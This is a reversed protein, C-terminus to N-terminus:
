ARSGCFDATSRALEEVVEDDTRGSRKLVHFGHDAGEVVHLTAREGLRDTVQKMLTLEALKDRTGQLFLMPHPVDDLHDARETGERGPPHLPFGVFILGAASGLAGEAAAHSSMRGGFSKGGVFLPLDGAIRSVAAVAARVTGLTKARGDPRRGGREMYPFNYRLTAIGLAAFADASAEMFAHRMGAGAGHAYVFVAGADAPRLLLASLETEAEPVDIRHETREV